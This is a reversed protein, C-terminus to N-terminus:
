AKRLTGRSGSLTLLPAPVPEAHRGLLLFGLYQSSRAREPMEGRRIAHRRSHQQHIVIRGLEGRQSRHDAVHLQVDGRCAGAAFRQAQQQLAIERYDQEIHLHRFHIADFGGGQDMATRFRGIRGDDEDGCLGTRVRFADAGVGGARDVEDERRYHRLNEAGLDPHEDVQEVQLAPQGQLGLFQQLRFQLQALQHGMLFLDLFFFALPDRPLDMVLQPLAQQRQAHIDGHQLVADGGQLRLEELRRAIGQVVDIRGDAAHAADDVVKTGRHEVQPQLRGELPM